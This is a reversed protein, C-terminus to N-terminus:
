MKLQDDIHLVIKHKVHNSWYIVMLEATLMSSNASLESLESGPTCGASNPLLEAHQIRVTSSSMSFNSTSNQLTRAPGWNRSRFAGSYVEAATYRRHPWSIKFSHATQPVSTGETGFIVSTDKYEYHLFWLQSITSQIWLRKLNYCNLGYEWLCIGSLICILCKVWTLIM